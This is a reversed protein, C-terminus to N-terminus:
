TSTEQIPHRRLIYLMLVMSPLAAFMAIAYFATWGLAAAAFGSLGGVTHSALAAVSSLLAYQTATFRVACLSSLFAVFAAVAMSQVFAEALVTAYLIPLSGPSVTLVVYMSMFGMQTFGTAILARRLGLRAVILGGAAYGLMTAALALPGTALAVTARDFGLHRYLPALMKGALAEDLYFFAVYALIPWAGPRTLFDRFPGTIAASIRTALAAGAPTAAPPPPEPALLTVLPAVALLGAVVLLAASWGVHTASWIVGAGSTLMAARYGIVYAALAPGQSEVPFTEIRWADIAIDQSASLFAVLAACLFTPLPHAHPSTFALAAISLALLPQIIALWGRRRGLRRLPAAQDLLPSWLFKLSYALGINATLGIAQLSVGGEALWQTLTFGSLPLPLGAFFGFAAMVALRRDAFLRRASLPEPM